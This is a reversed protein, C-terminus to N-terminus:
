IARVSIAIKTSRAMPQPPTMKLTCLLRVGGIIATVQVILCTCMARSVRTRYLENPIVALISVISVTPGSFAGRADLSCLACLFRNEDVLKLRRLSLVGHRLPPTKGGATYPVGEAHTPRHSM